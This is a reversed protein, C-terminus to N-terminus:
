ATAPVIHDLLGATVDWLERQIAESRGPEPCALPEIRDYHAGIDQGVRRVDRLSSLDALFPDVPTGPATDDIQRRLDDVKSQNRAVIGLRVDRRALDLAV